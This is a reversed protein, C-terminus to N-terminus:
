LHAASCLIMMEIVRRRGCWVRDGKRKSCFMSVGGVFIFANETIRKAIPSPITAKEGVGASNRIPTPAVQTKASGVDLMVSCSIDGGGVEGSFTMIRSSASATPATVQFQTTM